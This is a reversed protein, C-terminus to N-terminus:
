CIMDLKAENRLFRLDPMLAQTYADGTPRPRGEATKAMARTSWESYREWAARRERAAGLQDRELVELLVVRVHARRDLVGTM